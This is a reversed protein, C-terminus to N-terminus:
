PAGPLGVRDARLSDLTILIINPKTVAPSDVPFVLLILIPFVFWSGLRRVMRLLRAINKFRTVAPHPVRLDTGQFFYGQQQARDQNYAPCYHQRGALGTLCTRVAIPAHDNKADVAHIGLEQM